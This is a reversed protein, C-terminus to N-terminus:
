SILWRWCTKCEKCFACFGTCCLIAMYCNCSILSHWMHKGPRDAAARGREAALCWQRPRGRDSLRGHSTERLEPYRWRTWHALGDHGPGASM